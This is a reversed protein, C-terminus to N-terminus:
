QSGELVQSVLRYYFSISKYLRGNITILPSMGGYFFLEGGGGCVCVRM